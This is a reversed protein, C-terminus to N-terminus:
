KVVKLHSRSPKSGGSGDPPEDGDSGDASGAEPEVEGFLMGEGNERAYIALVAGPPFGVETPRGGFRAGFSVWDNGLTLGRVAQPSVNLTVKGDEDYGPPVDVGPADAAVLLYPSLSNDVMWDYMARLLYPRRSSLSM